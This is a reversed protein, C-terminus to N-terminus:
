AILCTDLGLKTPMLAFQNPVSSHCSAGFFDTSEGVATLENDVFPVRWETPYTEICILPFNWLLFGRIWSTWTTCTAALFVWDAGPKMKWHSTSNTNARYLCDSQNLTCTSFRQSFIPWSTRKCLVPRYAQRVAIVEGRIPAWFPPPVTDLMPPALTVKETLQKISKKANKHM